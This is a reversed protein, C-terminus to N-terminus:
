HCFPRLDETGDSKDPNTNSDVTTPVPLKLWPELWHNGNHFSCSRHMGDGMLPAGKM